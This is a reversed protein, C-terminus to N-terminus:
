KNITMLSIIEETFASTKHIESPDGIATIQFIKDPLLTPLFYEMSDGTTTVKATLASGSKMQIDRLYNNDAIMEGNSDKLYSIDEYVGINLTRKIVSINVQGQSANVTISKLVTPDNNQEQEITADPPILFAINGEPITVKKWDKYQAIQNRKTQLNKRVERSIDAITNNKGNWSFGYVDKTAISSDRIQSILDNEDIFYGFGKGDHEEYGEGSLGGKSLYDSTM